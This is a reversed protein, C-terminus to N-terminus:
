ARIDPWPQSAASLPASPVAAAETWASCRADRRYRRSWRGAQRRCDIGSGGTAGAGRGARAGTGGSSALEAAGAGRRCRYHRAASWTAVLAAVCHWLRPGVAAAPKPEVGPSHWRAPAAANVCPHSRAARVSLAAKPQLSGCRADCRYRRSWTRNRSPLLEVTPLLPGAVSQRWRGTGAGAGRGCRCHRSGAVAVAVAASSRRREAAGPEGAGGSAGRLM